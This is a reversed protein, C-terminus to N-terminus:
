VGEGKITWPNLTGLTDPRTNILFGPRASAPEQVEEPESKERHNWGHDGKAEKTLHEDRREGADAFWQYEIQVALGQFGEM